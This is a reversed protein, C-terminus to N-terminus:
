GAPCGAAWAILDSQVRYCDYWDYAILRGTTVVGAWLCLSGAAAYRLRKPAKADNDWTDVSENMRKHFLWANIGAVILLVFKIRFWISTTYREPVAYFLLLGTVIMVTFGIMMPMNLRAAIKSAPVQTMTLGLMRLDIVCLMGLFIMLTLVHTSEIWNYM